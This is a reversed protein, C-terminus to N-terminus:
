GRRLDYQRRRRNGRRSNGWGRLSCRRRRAREGPKHRVRRLLAWTLRGDVRLRHGLVKLVPHEDPALLRVKVAALDVSEEVVIFPGIPIGGVVLPPRREGFVVRIDHGRGAEELRNWEHTPDDSPSLDVKAMPKGVLVAPGLAIGPSGSVGALGPPTSGELTGSVDDISAMDSAHLRIPILSPRRGPM